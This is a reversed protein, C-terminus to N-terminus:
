AVNATTGHEAGFGTGPGEQTHPGEVVADGSGEISEGGQQRGGVLWRAVVM